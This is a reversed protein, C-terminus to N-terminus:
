EGNKLADLADTAQTYIDAARAEIIGRDYCNVTSTTDCIFSVLVEFDDITDNCIVRVRSYNPRKSFTPLGFDPDHEEPVFM